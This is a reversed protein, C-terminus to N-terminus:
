ALSLESADCLVTVADSGDGAWLTLRKGWFGSREKPCIVAQVDSSRKRDCSSRLRRHRPCTEGAKSAWSVNINIVTGYQAEDTQYMANGPTQIITESQRYM